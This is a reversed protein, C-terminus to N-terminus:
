EAHDFDDSSIAMDLGQCEIAINNTLAVRVAEATACVKGERGTV